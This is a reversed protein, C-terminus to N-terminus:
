DSEKVIMAPLEKGEPIFKMSISNVCHRTNKATLREGLFVHGLHGGCNACVIETRFGDVDPRRKVAGPIEDDFSPWGCHSEFKDKARYLQANCQRCIYTGPDKTLTYGGPGPPETGQNLIVYAEKANLENYEGFVRKQEQDMAKGGRKGSATKGSKTQSTVQALCEQLYRRSRNMEGTVKPITDLIPIGRPFPHMFIETWGRYQTEVLAEVIPVFDLEGRGPMQLLEEDKPLKKMAGMGHQWAYFVAISDGLSRILDAILQPNQPLHYPALAIGLNESPRFERLWKLSDPTQILNNGHNEIAITVGTKAAVELHPKMQEIFDRVANKLESGELGRPGKAGTVITQCGLRNALRMEDQLKFPGLKYQTLCGLQIDAARLSRLFSAEGIEDLQERQNGHVMPWLDIATAGIKAVEPLISALDAYGYMCSPLMYRFEFSPSAAFASSPVACAAASAGASALAVRRNVRM